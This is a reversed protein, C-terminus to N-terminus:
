QMLYFPSDLRIADITSGPMSCLNKKSIVIAQKPSVKPESAWILKCSYFRYGMCELILNVYVNNNRVCLFALIVYYILFQVISEWKTFDFVFLPLIYSLLYESTIGKEQTANIIKYDIIHNNQINKFVKIIIVLSFAFIVLISCIGVLETIINKNGKCISLTNIFLITIWLPTFSTYFMAFKFFKNM